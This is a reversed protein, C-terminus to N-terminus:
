MYPHHSSQLSSGVYRGYNPPAGYDPTPAGYSPSAGYSPQAVYSPQAGYSPPVGYSSPPVNAAQTYLAPDSVQYDHPVAGFRPYRDPTGAYAARIPPVQRGSYVTSAVSGGSSRHPFHRENPRPRKAQPRKSFEGGRKKEVKSKELQYVRKQLTDLPYESELKYEEICKIVNKLAALEQANADDKATAIERLNGTVQSNRRRNKLYTKLLPVLPFTEQLQFFHVFHVAAIQQGNNILLEVVAPVKHTLGISRCLEPALRHQAVALILKCLEEEDFESAIRFTSILQLYAEAELSNRNAADNDANALKPRWEGAIAKAQQKTEPNLLHDAGPDARALLSAMAELILICSTRKGELAASIKDKLQTTENAPYFGALSDLVLRAPDTASELAVSIEERMVSMQKKNEVVYNLLGNADMQECFLKLEPHPMVETAVGESKEGSNHPFDEPSSSVKNNDKNEGDYVSELTTAQHTERAEAISAVATDKLGQLRDLLDQEKSTVAAKREALLSNMELQKEEYEKERAQLEELKKNLTTELNTFHQKIEVWQVKDESDGKRAELELIGRGLQEILSEKNIEADLEMDGM